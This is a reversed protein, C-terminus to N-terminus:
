NSLTESNLITDLILVVDSTPGAKITAAGRSAPYRLNAGIDDIYITENPALNLRSFTYDYILPEPKRYGVKSSEVVVEFHDRVRQLPDQHAPIQFNNTVVALQFNGLLEQTIYNILADNYKGPVVEHIESASTKLSVEQLEKNLDREFITIDIEGREFRGWAGTSGSRALLNSLQSPEAGIREELNAIHSLPTGYLVGGFDFIIGKIM